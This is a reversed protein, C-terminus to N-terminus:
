PIFFLVTVGVVSALGGKARGIARRADETNDFVVIACGLPKGEGGKFM